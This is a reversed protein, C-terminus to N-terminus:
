RKSCAARAARCRELSGRINGPLRGARDLEDWYDVSRRLSGCMEADHRGLRYL